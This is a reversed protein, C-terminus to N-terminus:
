SRRNATAAAHQDTTSKAVPQVNCAAACHKCVLHHGALTGLACGRGGHTRLAARGEASRQAHQAGARRTGSATRGAAGCRSHAAAMSAGWCTLCWPPGSGLTTAARSRRWWWRWKSRSRTLGRDFLPATRTTAPKAPCPQHPSAAPSFPHYFSVVDSAALVHAVLAPCAHTKQPRPRPMCSPSSRQMPRLKPPRKAVPQGQQRRPQHPRPHAAAHVGEGRSVGGQPHLLRATTRTATLACLVARHSALPPAPAAHAGATTARAGSSASQTRSSSLPWGVHATTPRAMPSLRRLFSPCRRRRCVGSMRSHCRHVM